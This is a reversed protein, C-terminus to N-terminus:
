DCCAPRPWTGGKIRREKWVQGTRRKYINGHHFTKLTWWGNKYGVIMGELEYGQENFYGVEYRVFGGM